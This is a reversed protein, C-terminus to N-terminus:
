DLKRDEGKEDTERGRGDDRGGGLKGVDWGVATYFRVEM